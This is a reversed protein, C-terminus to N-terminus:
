LDTAKVRAASQLFLIYDLLFHVQQPTEIAKVSRRRRVVEIVRELVGMAQERGEGVGGVLGCKVIWCCAVLGARGIGGRCHALVSEGRLTHVRILRNLHADLVAPSAPAFGEVMPIRIVSLSLSSAARSYEEWPAGLYNLETPHQNHTRLRSDSPLEPLFNQSEGQDDLCCVIMRVGEDKARQLDMKLDRCIGSRGGKVPAAGLRVKKGPCSSLLFNGFPKSWGSEDAPPCAPPYPSCTVDYIDCSPPSSIIFPQNTSTNLSLSFSPSLPSRPKPSSSRGFLESALLLLFEPPLIPSINMPHSASTKVAYGNIMQMGPLHTVNMAMNSNPAPATRVLPPATSRDLTTRLADNLAAAVDTETAGNGGVEKENEASSSVPPPSFTFTDLTPTLHTETTSSSSLRPPPTAPRTRPPPTARSHSEPTRILPPFARNGIVSQGPTSLHLAAPAPDSRARSLVPLALPVPPLPTPAPSALSSAVVRKLVNYQSLSCLLSPAHTTLRRVCQMSPPEVGAHHQSSMRALLNSLEVPMELLARTQEQATIGPAPMGNVEAEGGDEKITAWQVENPTEEVGLGVLPENVNKASLPDLSSGERTPLPALPVRVNSLKTRSVRPSQEPDLKAQLPSADPSPSSHARKTPSPRPHTLIPCLVLPSPPTSRNERSALISTM